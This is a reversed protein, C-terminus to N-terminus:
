HDVHFVTSKANSVECIDSGETAFRQASVTFSGAVGTYTMSQMTSLIKQTDSITGAKEMAQALYGFFDYEWIAAFLYGNYKSGLTKSLSKALQAIQADRPLSLDAGGGTNSAYNSTIGAQTALSCTGSYDFEYPAVDLNQAVKMVSLQQSPTNVVDVLVQVKAAKLQLLEATYDTTSLPYSVTKVVSLGAATAAAPLGDQVQQDAGYGAGVLLGIRKASPFTKKIASITIALRQAVSPQTSVMFQTKPINPAAASAAEFFLVKYPDTIPFVANAIDGVAGFMFNVHDQQILGSAKSAATGPASNDNSIDLKFTYKKGNVVVGKANVKQVALQAGALVPIGYDQWQGTTEAVFGIPIVGSSSSNTSQATANNDAAAGSCAGVAVALLCASAAAIATKMSRRM